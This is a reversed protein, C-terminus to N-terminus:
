SMEIALEFGTLNADCINPMMQKFLKFSAEVPNGFQHATQHLVVEIDPWPKSKKLANFSSFNDMIIVKPRTYKIFIIQLAELINNM